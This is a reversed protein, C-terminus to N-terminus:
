AAAVRRRYIAMRLDSEGISDQRAGQRDWSADADLRAFAYAPPTLGKAGARWENAVCILGGPATRRAAEALVDDIERQSLYYLVDSFLCFDFSEGPFGARIDAVRFEVQAFARCNERAQRVAEPSIDCAILREVRPALRETLFGQACGVELASAFRAEPLAALIWDARRAHAPSDRYGWSDAAPRAYRDAFDEASWGRGLWWRTQRRWRRYLSLALM